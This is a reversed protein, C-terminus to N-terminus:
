PIMFWIKKGGKDSHEDEVFIALNYYGPALGDIEKFTDSLSYSLVPNFISSERKSIVLFYGNYGSVSNWIFLAPQYVTDQSQPYIISPFTDVVNYLKTSINRQAGHNDATNFTFSNGVLENVTYSGLKEITNDYLGTFPDNGYNYSLILNTDLIHVYTSSIDQIRDSDSITAQMVIMKLTIGEIDHIVMSYVNSEEIVPIFNLHISCSTTEGAKVDLTETASSYNPRGTELIYTDPKLEEISFRGSDDTLARYNNNLYIEVRGVPAPSYNLINGSIVGVANPNHIDHPNDRPADSYCGVIFLLGFIFLIRKMETIISFNKM